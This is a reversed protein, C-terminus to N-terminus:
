GAGAAIFVRQMKILKKINQQTVVNSKNLSAFIKSCKKALSDYFPIITRILQEKVSYLTM